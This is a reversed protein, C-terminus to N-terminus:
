GDLSKENKYRYNRTFTFLSNYVRFVTALVSQGWVCLKFFIYYNKLLFNVINGTKQANKRM